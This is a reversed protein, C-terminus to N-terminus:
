QLTIGPMIFPPPVRVRTKSVGPPAIKKWNKRDSQSWMPLKSFPRHKEETFIPDSQPMAMATRFM